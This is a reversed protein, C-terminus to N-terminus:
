AEERWRRLRIAAYIMAVGVAAAIWVGPSALTMYSERLIGATTMTHDEGM